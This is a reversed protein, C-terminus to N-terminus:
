YRIVILWFIASNIEQLAGQSVFM